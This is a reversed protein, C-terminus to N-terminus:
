LNIRYTASCRIISLGVRVAVTNKWAKDLEEFVIDISPRGDSSKAVCLVAIQLISEFDVADLNGELTPDEIDKLPRKGMSVDKAKRTLQDRADLDLEIVKQGSLVQLAVIGFSYIDSACTLKANSMYEPDMYGITGRVDTFVKSEEMGLVRALGFDSLKPEMNETLLINTLKIDRHVICGDVYHHLYRLALACDRLIKVRSEWPLVTEKKLLHQALNGASCYEYVLYQEGDEMCCGFLCVLNPHRVRSLGEIERTFSDSTNSKHVHKIAVVQGSPLIGKYVVGASGRGLCEKENGYNMANEIEAKSFSYLASWAVIDKARVRKKEQKKSKTVYKILAIILILGTTALLVALLARALTSKIKIYHGSEILAPLCRYFDKIQSENDIEGAVVAVILAVGCIVKETNNDQEYLQDLFQNTANILANTCNSCFNDFSPNFSACQHFAAQFSSNQTITSLKLSSCQSSGYFLDDFGCAQVSVSQQQHFPDNCNKWREGDIFINGDGTTAQRALAQTLTNLANRCCISSPFGDWDSTKENIGGICEGSPEYPISTFNLGCAAYASSVTLQLHVADGPPPSSATQLFYVGFVFLISLAKASDFTSKPM